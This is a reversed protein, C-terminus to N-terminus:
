LMNISSLYVASRIMQVTQEPRDSIESLSPIGTSVLSKRVMMHADQLRMQTTVVTTLGM